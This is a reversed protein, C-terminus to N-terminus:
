AAAFDIRFVIQCTDPARCLVATTTTTNEDRHHGQMRLFSFVCIRAHLQLELLATQFEEFAALGPQSCIM